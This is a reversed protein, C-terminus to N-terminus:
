LHKGARLKTFIQRGWLLCHGGFDTFAFTSLQLSLTFVHSTNFPLRDKTSPPHRSPFFLGPMQMCCQVRHTRLVHPKEISQIHTCVLPRSYM